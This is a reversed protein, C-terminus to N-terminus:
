SRQLITLLRLNIRLITKEWNKRLCLFNKIKKPNTEICKPQVPHNDDIIYILSPLRLRQAEEYELQTFSKGSKTEISGYRHAFIGIYIQSAGVKELCEELPTNFTAGFFEMGYPFTEFKHLVNLVEERHEKLDEYTSSVFVSICTKTKQTSM